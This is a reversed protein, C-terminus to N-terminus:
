EDGEKTKWLWMLVTSAAAIFWFGLENPKELNRVGRSSTFELGFADTSWGVDCNRFIAALAAVFAVSAIVRQAQNLKM